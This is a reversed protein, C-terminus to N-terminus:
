SGSDVRKLLSVTAAATEAHQTGLAMEGPHSGSFHGYGMHSAGPLTVISAGEPLRETGRRYARPLKGAQDARVVQLAHVTSDALSHFSLPIADWLVLGGVRSPYEAAFRAAMAGGQSHGGVVWQQVGEVSGFVRLAADADFVALHFPMPVVVVPFGAEAVRRLPAAYGRVDCGSGPYFVLGTSRAGNRPNFVLWDGSEVQVTEDSELADLAHPLATMVRRELWLGTAASAFLGVAAVSVLAVL